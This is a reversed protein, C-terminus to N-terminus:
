QIICKLTTSSTKLAELSYVFMVFNCIMLWKTSLIIELSTCTSFQFHITYYDIQIWKLFEKSVQFEILIGLTKKIKNNLYNDFKTLVRIWIDTCGSDLGIM